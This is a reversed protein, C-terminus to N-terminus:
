GIKKLIKEHKKVGFLINRFMFFCILLVIIVICIVYKYGDKHDILPMHQFNMGYWGSIFSLPLFITAVITLITNTTASRSNELSDLYKNLVSTNNRLTNIDEKINNYFQRLKGNFYYNQFISLGTNNDEPNCVVWKEGKYVASEIGKECEKNTYCFNPMNTTNNIDPGFCGTFCGRMNSFNYKEANEDTICYKKQNCDCPNDKKNKDQKNIINDHIKYKDSDPITTKSLSEIAYIISGQSFKKM